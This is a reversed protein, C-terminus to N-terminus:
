KARPWIEKKVEIYLGREGLLEAGEGLLHATYEEPFKIGLIKEIEYIDNITSKNPAMPSVRFDNDLYKELIEMTKDEM